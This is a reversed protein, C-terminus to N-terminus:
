ASSNEQNQSPAPQGGLSMALRREARLDAEVKSVQRAVDALASTAATLSAQLLEVRRIMRGFDEERM